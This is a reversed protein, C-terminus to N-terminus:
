GLVPRVHLGAEPDVLVEQNAAVGDALLTAGPDVNRKIVALAIPGLEDDFLGQVHDSLVEQLLGVSPLLRSVLVALASPSLM